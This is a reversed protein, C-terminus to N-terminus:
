RHPRWGSGAPSGPSRRASRLSSCLSRRPRTARYAARCAHRPPAHPTTPQFAVPANATAKFGPASAAQSNYSTSFGQPSFPRVRDRWPGTDRRTGTSARYVPSSSTPPGDGQIWPSFGGPQQLFHLLGAPQITTGPRALSRHGPTNRHFGPLGPEVIYPPRRRPDLPQLRRATTPLPSARRASRM